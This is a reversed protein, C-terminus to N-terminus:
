RQDRDAPGRDEEHPRRALALKGDRLTPVSVNLAAFAALAIMRLSIVKVVLTAARATGPM